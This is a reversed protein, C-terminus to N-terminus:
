ALFALTFLTTTRQVSQVVRRSGNVFVITAFLTVAVIGGIIPAQHFGGKTEDDVEKVEDFTSEVGHDRRDPQRITTRPKRRALAINPRRVVRGNKARHTQPQLDEKTADVSERVHVNQAANLEKVEEESLSIKSKIEGDNPFHSSSGFNDGGLDFQHHAQIEGASIENENRVPSSLTDRMTLTLIFTFCVVALFFKRLHSSNGSSNYHRRWMNMVPSTRGSLEREKEEIDYDDYESDSLSPLNPCSNSRRRLPQWPIPTIDGHPVIPSVPFVSTNIRRRVSLFDVSTVPTDIDLPNDEDSPYTNTSILNFAM